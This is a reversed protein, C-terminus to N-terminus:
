IAKYFQRFEYDEERRVKHWNKTNTLFGVVRTFNDTILSNCIPCKENKGVTMHGNECRQLNHNIAWYVIGKKACEVILQEIKEEDEIKEEVNIHCIAGGSFDSDFMGQLKIRDLMDAKTTLPIFQNSYINYQSQYGLLIDKQALKIASNESPVQEANTSSKFRKQLKNNLINITEVFKKVFNQGSEELINFGMLECCENIGNLGITLYQKDINMYDLTYLPLNGNDIRKKLIYKKVYNIKQAYECNEKLIELFIDINKNSRIAIRPLNLTIVGLSGVKLSGTAFSNTYENIMDSRLRCNHTIIGNPLTFYQEDENLTEFCYVFEDNTDFEEISKIKFYISNNKVKFLDKYERRNKTYYWRICHLPYNRNSVKGRIIVKEDTRDSVNIVSCLGLSTMVVEIQEILKESTSYIRNSNGGDTIYFGDIIGRRFQENQLLCNLNLEKEYGYNGNVWCRIIEVLKINHISVPYVNHYPTSLCVESNINWQKLAVKLHELILNYKNENLSLQVSGSNNNKVYISGDGLYCGILLGQEYSLKQDKEPYTNLKMTNFLLYDNVTLDSTKIEGKFCPNIHDETILLEKNNATTIKYIKKNDRPLKLTKGNVWSGNHFIKFYYGTEGNKSEHLDKFTLYHVGNSNRTIVKQSGHFCCASITSTKGCYINIFGFEKNKKAIMKLFEKDLINNDEDVSFCASSIPFTVPTRSLEFNMIDLYMEQLKKIIDKNPKNGDTDYYYECLEELFYDDYISVNSFVSQNSRFPQNLTYILSQIEERVYKWISEEDKFINDEKFLKDVYFSMVIFLDAIGTAGLTSNGAHVVFQEIQSKFSWLHKPPISKIKNIYSLGNIMIDYTSYNFCYSMGFFGHFDNIYYDGILQKEIVKNAEEHGYLKKYYKWLVYYSNLRFFPKPLETNYTIVSIDDVNSNSDISIDAASSKNGFFDKSFQAMDLQKGVGDLDFLKNPYKSKLYMWLDEFEQDYTVRLYM